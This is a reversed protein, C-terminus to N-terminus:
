DTEGFSKEADRKEIFKEIARKEVEQEVRKGVTERLEYSTSFVRCKFEEDRRDGIGHQKM